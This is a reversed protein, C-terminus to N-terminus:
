KNTAYLFAISKKYLNQIRSSQQFHKHSRLKKSFNKADNLYLIMDDAFLRRGERNSDKQNRKKQRVTRALFELLLNFLLPTLLCGQRMRSKLLFPKLNEGM